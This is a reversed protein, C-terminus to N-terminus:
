VHSVIANYTNEVRYNEQLFKYGKEGMAKRDAHIMRDLIATFAEVSNSECSYGFGNEEAIKGIDTAQDTACLVPMRSELYSLLRSPFNPITFRYDLTIIGVDCSCVFSDYVDKQMGKMLSVNRPKKMRYWEELRSRETGTGVVVFFCDNRDSNADLCEILFPIGQPKGLNGGCIFVPKDLPLGYEKRLQMPDPATSSYLEISNPAVEVKEPIIEPNHELLYAVNAPSMCGIHDSVSYLEKEKMRFYRYLISKVGTKSLMGIDVANQPFVDKLLLYSMSAPNKKKLSSVVKCFTIPPTSYLILDFSIGSLYKAIARKYQNEVLLQGVGKEVVNTKQLNLTRVGLFHVGDSVTLRTPLGTSRENPYVVYIEYGEKLFKRLLDSYIDRGHLDAIRVMTLFVLKRKKM